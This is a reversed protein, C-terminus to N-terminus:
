AIIMTVDYIHGKSENFLEFQFLCKQEATPKYLLFINTFTIILLKYLQLTLANLM